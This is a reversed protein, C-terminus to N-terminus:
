HHGTRTLQLNALGHPNVTLGSVSSPYLAPITTYGSTCLLSDMDLQYM